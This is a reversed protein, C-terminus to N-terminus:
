EAAKKLLDAAAFACQSQSAVPLVNMKGEADFLVVIGGKITPNEAAIDKLLEGMNTYKKKGGLPIVNESM